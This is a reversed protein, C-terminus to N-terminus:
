AASPPEATDKNASEGHVAAAAAPKPPVPVVEAARLEALARGIHAHLPLPTVLPQDM